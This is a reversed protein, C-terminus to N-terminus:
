FNKKLPVKIHAPKLLEVPVFVPLLDYICYLTIHDLLSERTKNAHQQLFIYIYLETNHLFRVVSILGM